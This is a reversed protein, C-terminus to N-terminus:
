LYLFLKPTTTPADFLLDENYVSYRRIKLLSLNQPNEILYRYVLNRSNREGGVM